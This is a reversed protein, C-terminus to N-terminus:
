NQNKLKGEVTVVALRSLDGKKSEAEGMGEVVIPYDLGDRILLKKVAKARAIDIGSLGIKTPQAYGQIVIREVEFSEEIGAIFGRLAKINGSNIWSASLGFGVNHSISVLEKVQNQAEPETAPPIPIPLPESSKKKEPKAQSSQKTKSTLPNKKPASTSKLGDEIEKILENILPLVSSLDGMQRQENARRAAEAQAASNDTNNPAVPAATVTLTFTQTTSSTANTATITYATAAAVETPTGSLLGTTTNFTLGTPAAPSIAYSAITGGTSSITYGTIASGSAKTESASSITFAPATVTVTLTFTQTASGSANTATITYATAGAAATPTGSLLGTTTNFNLGAPATPSIAYSAITGGTSSITYGSIATNVTKSESSSSLTFAPSLLQDFRALAFRSNGRGAVVIKGDSQIAVSYATDLQGFDQTLKGDGSFSTDLEGATTYRALAFDNNSVGAVVIKGDSQIAVSYANDVSGFDTTLKGDGDFSTDLVGATTYRALAFNNNSFQGAVVIKGDSQIVVSRGTDTGGLDSTVKGDGDFSNDLVGATTYRALAFNDNSVGAVVIKGDSQIAVSYAEGVPSSFYGAVGDGSFSTDLAGATTYRALSFYEASTGAVVIKGDSQIAVSYAIDIGNWDFSVKGDGSFSTDLQGATTYRTLAYDNETTGVAVIKGDSQIAISYTTNTGPFTTTVMGDVDFSLDLDLAYASPTLTFTLIISAILYLFRCKLKLDTKKILSQRMLLFGGFFNECPYQFSDPSRM